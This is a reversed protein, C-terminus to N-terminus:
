VLSSVTWCVGDNDSDLYDILLKTNGGTGYIAIEGGNENYLLQVGEEGSGNQVTMATTASLYGSVGVNGTFTGGSKPMLAAAEVGDLTDADLGSGTGDVTKIATMIQAATQDATASAEIGNLKTHDADTFNNQTLGGDGVTPIQSSNALPVWAGAHAYYALGTAHVHAFMGHYTSASPLDSLASYVNAFLMKGTTTINNSGMNLNSAVVAAVANANTYAASTELKDSNLNTFNADVETNTLPSGKGSRTVITAM